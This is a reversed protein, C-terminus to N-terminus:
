QRGAVKALGADYIGQIVQKAKDDPAGKAQFTSSWKMLTRGDGAPSLQLTSRYHQVPLPSELIDYTYSHKGADYAVLRETITAGDGPTLVRMTGPKNGPASVTSKAVAPHWKELADFDGVREWVAAPAGDVITERSVSLEAAIAGASLALLAAAAALTRSHRNM